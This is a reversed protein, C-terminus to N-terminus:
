LNICHPPEVSVDLTSTVEEGKEFVSGLGVSEPRWLRLQIIYPIGRVIYMTRDTEWRRLKCPSGVDACSM